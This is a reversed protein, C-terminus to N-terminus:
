IPLDAVSSPSRDYLIGPHLEQHLLTAVVFSIMDVAKLLLTQDPSFCPFHLVRGGVGCEGPHLELRLM